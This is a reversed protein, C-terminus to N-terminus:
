SKSQQNTGAKQQNQQSQQQQQQRQQQAQNQVQDAAKNAAHQAKQVTDEAVGQAKEVLNDRAEGMLQNEMQTEPLALGIITGAALAAGAVLLPNDDWTQEFWSRARRAQWQAYDAADGARDSVNSAMDQVQDGVRNATDQIQDGVRSATNQVKDAMQNMRGNDQQGQYTGNRYQDDFRGYRDYGYRGYRDYRGNRANWYDREDRRDAASRRAGWILWGVGIATLAVPIPNERITDMITSGTEKATDAVNSAMEQARGITADRATEKAQEMLRQPSLKEQIADITNGMRARTDEIDGRIEATSEDGSDGSDGSVDSSRGLDTDNARGTQGTTAMDQVPPEAGEVIYDTRTVIVEDPADDALPGGSGLRERMAETNRGALDQSREFSSEYDNNRPELDDPRQGM